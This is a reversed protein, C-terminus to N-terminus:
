AGVFGYFLVREWGGCSKESGKKPQGRNFPWARLGVAAFLAARIQAIVQMQHGDALNRRIKKAFLVGSGAL